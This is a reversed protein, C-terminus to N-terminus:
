PNNDRSTRACAHTNCTLAGVSPRRGACPRRTCPHSSPLTPPPCLLRPTACPRVYLLPGYPRPLQNEYRCAHSIINCRQAALTKRGRIVRRMLPPVDNENNEPCTTISTCVFTREPEIRGRELRYSRILVSNARGTCAQLLTTFPNRPQVRFGNSTCLRPVHRRDNDARRQRSRLISLIKEDRGM